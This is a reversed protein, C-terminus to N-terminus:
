GTRKWPTLANLKSVYRRSVNEWYSTEFAKGQDKVHYLDTRKQYVCACWPTTTNKGQRVIVRKVYMQKWYARKKREKIVWIAM